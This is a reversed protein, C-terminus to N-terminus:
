QDRYSTNKLEGTLIPYIRLTVTCKICFYKGCSQLVSLREQLSRPFFSDSSFFILVLCCRYLYLVTNSNSVCYCPFYVSQRRKWDMPGTTSGSGGGDNDGIGQVRRRDEEPAELKTTSTKTIMNRRWHRRQQQLSRPGTTM